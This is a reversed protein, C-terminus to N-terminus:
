GGIKGGGCRNRDHTGSGVDGKGVAIGTNVDIGAIGQDFRDLWKGFTGHALAHQAPDTAEAGQEFDALLVLLRHQHGARVADTGLQFQSKVQVPM